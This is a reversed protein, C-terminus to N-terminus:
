DPPHPVMTGCTTVAPRRVHKGRHGRCAFPCERPAERPSGGPMSLLLLGYGQNPSSGRTLRAVIDALRATPTWRSGSRRALEWTEPGGGRSVVALTVGAVTVMALEDTDPDLVPKRSGREAGTARPASAGYTDTHVPRKARERNRAAEWNMRSM